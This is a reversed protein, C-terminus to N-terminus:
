LGMRDRKNRDPGNNDKLWEKHLNRFYFVDRLGPHQLSEHINYCLDCVKGHEPVEHVNMSVYDSIMYGCNGCKSNLIGRVKDYFQVNEQIILKAIPDSIKFARRAYRLRLEPNDSVRKDPNGM